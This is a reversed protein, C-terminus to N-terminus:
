FRAQISLTFLPIISHFKCCHSINENLLSQGLSVLAKLLYLIKDLLAVCSKEIKFGRNVVLAFAKCGLKRATSIDSGIGFHIVIHQAVAEIHDACVIIVGEVEGKLAKLSSKFGKVLASDNVCADSVVQM